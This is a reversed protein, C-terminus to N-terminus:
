EAKRQLVICCLGNFLSAESHSEFSPSLLPATCRPQTQLTSATTCTHTHTHPPTVHCLRFLLCLRTTVFNAWVQGLYHPLLTRRGAADGDWGGMLMTVISLFALSWALLWSTRKQPLKLTVRNIWYSSRVRSPQATRHVLRNTDLLSRVLDTRLLPCM